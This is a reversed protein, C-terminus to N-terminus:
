GLRQKQTEGFTGLDKEEMCYKGARVWQPWCNDCWFLEVSLIADIM